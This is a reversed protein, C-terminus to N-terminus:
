EYAQPSSSCSKAGDVCERLPLRRRCLWATTSAMGLRRANRFSSPDVGGCRVRDARMWRIRSCIVFFPRRTGVELRGRRGGRGSLLPLPDARRPLPMGMPLSPVVLWGPLSVEAANHLLGAPPVENSSSRV